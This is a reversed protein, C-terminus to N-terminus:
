VEAQRSGVQGLLYVVVNCEQRWGGPYGLDSENGELEM